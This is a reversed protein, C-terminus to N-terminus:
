NQTQNGIFDFFTVNYTIIVQYRMSDANSAPMSDVGCIFYVQNAPAASTLASLTDDRYSLNLVKNPYCKAVVKHMSGTTNQPAYKWRLKVNGEEILNDLDNPYDTPSNDQLVFMRAARENVSFFNNVGVNTGNVQDATSTNVIHNSLCVFTITASNVKYKSYLAAYNDFFMPQHGTGTYNPDFLNNASFVNVASVGDGPNLAFDEVYRLVTNKRLPFGGIPRHVKMFKLKRMGRRSIAYRRTRRSSRARRFRRLKYPRVYRRPRRPM